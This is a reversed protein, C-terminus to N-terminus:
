IKGFLFGQQLSQIMYRAASLVDVADQFRTQFIRSAWFSCIIIQLKESMVWMEVMFVTLLPCFLLLIM